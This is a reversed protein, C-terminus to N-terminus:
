NGASQVQIIGNQLAEGTIHITSAIHDKFSWKRLNGSYLLHPELLKTSLHCTFVNCPEVRTMWNRSITPYIRNHLKWTFQHLQSGSSLSNILRSGHRERWMCYRWRKDILSCTRHQWWRRLITQCLVIAFYVYVFWNWIFMKTIFEIQFQIIGYCELEIELKQRLFVMYVHLVVQQVENVLKKLNGVAFAKFYKVQSTSVWVRRAVIQLAPFLKYPCM